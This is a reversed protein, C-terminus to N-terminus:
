QGDEAIQKFGANLSLVYWKGQVRAMPLVGVLERTDTEGSLTLQFAVPHYAEVDSGYTAQAANLNSANDEDRQLIKVAVTVDTGVMSNAESQWMALQGFNTGGMTLSDYYEQQLSPLVTDIVGPMGGGGTTYMGEYLQQLTAKEGGRGTTSLVAFLIIAVTVLVAAVSFLIRKTKMTM